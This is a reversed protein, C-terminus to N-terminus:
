KFSEYFYPFFFNYNDNNLLYFLFYQYLLYNSFVLKSDDFIIDFLLLLVSFKSPCFYKLVDVLSLKIGEGVVFFLLKFSDWFLLSLM